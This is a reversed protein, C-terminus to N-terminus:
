NLAQYILAIVAKFLSKLEHKKPQKSHLLDGRSNRIGGCYVSEVATQGCQASRRSRTQAGPSREPGVPLLLPCM